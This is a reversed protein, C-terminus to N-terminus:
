LIFLMHGDNRVADIEHVLLADVEQFFLGLFATLRAPPQVEYAGLVGDILRQVLVIDQLGNPPLVHEVLLSAM